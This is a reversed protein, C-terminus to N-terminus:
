CNSLVKEVLVVFCRAEAGEVWGGARVRLLGRRRNVQRGKKNERGAVSGIGYHSHSVGVPIFEVWRYRHRQTVCSGLGGIKAPTCGISEARGGLRGICDLRAQRQM